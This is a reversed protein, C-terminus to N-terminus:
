PARDRRHARGSPARAGPDRARVPAPVDGDAGRLLRGRRNARRPEGLVHAVVAIAVHDTAGHVQCGHGSLRRPRTEPARRSNTSCGLASEGEGDASDTESCRRRDTTARNTPSEELEVVVPPGASPWAIVTEPKVIVLATRWGSWAVSLWAWLWRDATGLRLRQPRSRELVQLQHRLTLIELHLAARSRVTGGLMALVSMLVAM